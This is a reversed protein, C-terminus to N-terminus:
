APATVPLTGKKYARLGSNLGGDLLPFFINESSSTYYLLVLGFGKLVVFFLTKKNKCILV